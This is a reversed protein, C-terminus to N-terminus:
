TYIYINVHGGGFDPGKRRRLVAYRLLMICVYARQRERERERESARERASERARERKCVCVCRLLPLSALELLGSQNM